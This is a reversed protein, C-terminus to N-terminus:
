ENLVREIYKQKSQNFYPRFDMYAHLVYLEFESRFHKDSEFIIKGKRVAKNLFIPPLDNLVRLDLIIKSDILFCDELESSIRIIYLSDPQFSPDLVIGIDIDSFPTVNGNIYSGYLYGLKIEPYKQFIENSISSIKEL